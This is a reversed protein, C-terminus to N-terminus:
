AQAHEIAVFSLTQTEGAVLDVKALNLHGGVRAVTGQLRPETSSSAGTDASGVYRFFRATGSELVEGSWMEGPDKSIVGDAPTGLNLGNASGDGYLTLLLTHAAGIADNASTPVDAPDCGYIHIFGGALASKLSDTGLLKNRLGTSILFTAM